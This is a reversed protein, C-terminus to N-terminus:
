AKQQQKLISDEETNEETIGVPNKVNGSLIIDCGLRGVKALFKGSWM